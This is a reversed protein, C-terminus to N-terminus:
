LAPLPQPQWVADDDDDDEAGVELAETGRLRKALAAEVEAATGVSSRSSSARLAAM